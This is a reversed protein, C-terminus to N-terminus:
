KALGDSTCVNGELSLCEDAHNTSTAVMSICTRLSLILICVEYSSPSSLAIAWPLLTATSPVRLLTDASSLLDTELGRAENGCAGIKWWVWLIATLFLSAYIFLTCALATETVWLGLSMVVRVAARIVLSVLGIM